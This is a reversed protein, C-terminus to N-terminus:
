ANTLCITSPPLSYVVATDGSACANEDSSGIVREVKFADPTGCTVKTTKAAVITGEQKFCDGESANLVLCLKYGDGRRGGSTYFETYDGTPCAGTGSDLRVAVKFAAEPSACDIQEVDSDTVSASNIKLCDGADAGGPGTLGTVLGLVVIGVVGLGIAGVLAKAAKSLGKRPPPFPQGGQPYHPHVPQGQYGPQPYGPQPHQAYGPQPHQPYGPQAYGPQGYGPQPYGGQDPAAYGTQGPQPYAPPPYGQPHGPQGPQDPPPHGPQQGPFGQPSPPGWGPQEPPPFGQPQGPPPQNPPTTM